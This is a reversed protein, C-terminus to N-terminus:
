KLAFVRHLMSEKKETEFCRFCVVGEDFRILNKRSYSEECITCVYNSDADIRKYFHWHGGNSCVFVLVAGHSEYRERFSHLAEHFEDDSSIEYYNNNPVSKKRDVYLFKAQM